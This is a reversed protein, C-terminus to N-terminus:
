HCAYKRKLQMIDGEITKRVMRITNDLQKDAQVQKVLNIGENKINELAENHMGAVQIMQGQAGELMERTENLHDKAKHQVADCLKGVEKSIKDNFMRNVASTLSRTRWEMQARVSDIRPIGDADHLLPPMGDGVKMQKGDLQNVSFRTEGPASVAAHKRKSGVGGLPALPTLNNKRGAAAVDLGSKSQNKDMLNAMEERQKYEEEEGGNGEDANGKETETEEYVAKAVHKKARAM